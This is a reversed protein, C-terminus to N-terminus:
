KKKKGGGTQRAIEADLRSTREQFVGKLKGLGMNTPKKKAAPKGKGSPSPVKKSKSPM